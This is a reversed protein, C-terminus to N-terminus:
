RGKVFKSIPILKSPHFYPPIASTIRDCFHAIVQHRGSWYAVEIFDGVKDAQEVEKAALRLENEFDEKRKTGLVASSLVDDLAHLLGDQYMASAM